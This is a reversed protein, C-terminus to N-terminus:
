PTNGNSTRKRQGSTVCEFELATPGAMRFDYLRTHLRNARLNVTGIRVEVPRQIM